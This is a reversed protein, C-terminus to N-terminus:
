KGKKGYSVEGEGPVLTKEPENKGAIKRIKPSGVGERPCKEQGGGQSL